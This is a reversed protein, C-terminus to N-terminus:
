EAKSLLKLSDQGYLFARFAASSNNPNFGTMGSLGSNDFLTAHAFIGSRNSDARFWTGCNIGYATGHHGIWPVTDGGLPGNPYIYLGEGFAIFHADESPGDPRLVGDWRWLPEWLHPQQRVIVDTLKVMDSLSARLGGQPSFLTGNQGPIYSDLSADDHILVAPTDANLVDPDDVQIVGNRIGPIGRTRKAASVGSWNLGIDLGLPKAIHRTFIHDFRRNLASEIATAALGYALNSYRFSVGPKGGPEWINQSLLSRINEPHPAWYVEPDHIAGRHSLLHRITIRESPHDPHRLPFKILEGVDSDLDVDGRAHLRRALEAVAMKTVSAVRFPTDLKFPSGNWGGNGLEGFFQGNEFLCYRWASGGRSRRDSQCGILAGPAGLFPSHPVARQCLRGLASDLWHQWSRDEQQCDQWRARL